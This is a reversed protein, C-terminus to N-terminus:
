GGGAILHAHAALQVVGGYTHQEFRETLARHVRKRVDASARAVPKSISFASLAFSAADMPELGGGIAIKGRWPKVELDAFGAKVLVESFVDTRQYRFPGPADPDPPSLDVHEAVVQRIVDIWPNDKLPGWVTFAFRGGPELWKRLNRLAALADTFFMVGFRSTLRQYSGPQTTAVDAVKFAMGHQKADLRARAVDILQPSVDFGDVFSRKPAAEWVKFTFAGGGCGIDAIRLPADLRLARLLPANLPALMAELGAVHARWTDGREGAWDFDRNESDESSHRMM